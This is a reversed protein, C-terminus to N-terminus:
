GDLELFSSNRIYDKIRLKSERSLEQHSIKHFEFFMKFKDCKEYEKVYVVRQINLAAISQCCKICPSITLFITHCENKKLLACLNSECHIFLDSKLARNEELNMWQPMEVGSKLGNYSIGIIRGEETMAVGGVRTHPDISRSKAALALLCGYEDWSLRQTM